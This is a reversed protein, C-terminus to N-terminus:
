PAAPTPRVSKPPIWLCVVKRVRLVVRDPDARAEQVWRGADDWSDLGHIKPAGPLLAKIQAFDARGQEIWWDVNESTADWESQFVCLDVDSDPRHDGRVRSGFVYVDPVGSAGDAWTAVAEALAPLDPPIPRRSAQQGDLRSFPMSDLRRAPEVNQKPSTM